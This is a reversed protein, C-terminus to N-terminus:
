QIDMLHQQMFQLMIEKIITFMETDNKEMVIMGILSLWNVKPYQKVYFSNQKQVKNQENYALGQTAQVVNIAKETFKNLDM